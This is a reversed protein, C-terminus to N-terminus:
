GLAAALLEDVLQVYGVGVAAYMRPVQSQETFGPATNVENLVVGDGTVFFDFRAVGACGLVDYLTAAAGAVAAHEAVSIGAPIRFPASGDYKQARDFVGRHDVAVELTAGSRLVGSRDRFLAVDVERGAVFSEVLVTSGASRAHDIAAALDDRRRVLTVGNSSGASTPKVVLPPAFPVSAAAAEVPDAADIRVAPASTIGVADAITKTVWKDAALAGARVPSGVVPVGVLDLLGAVAGDEGHEGHLLPFAADCSTLRAVADAPSLISGDEDHWTGDRGITLPAATHGGTRLAAVVAAASALSVDHEDNAGGGVVAIRLHPRGTM